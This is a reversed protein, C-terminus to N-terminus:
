MNIARVLRVGWESDPNTTRDGVREQIVAVSLDRRKPLRAKEAASLAAGIEELSLDTTYVPAGPQQRWSEALTGADFADLGTDEVLAMAVKRDRDRDAAVPIAIRGPAGKPKGKTAFSASGIANWAKAIPRGLQEVVWLSEVQGAEIAAIRADRHPYYNSTDIVVTEEPVAAILPAIGPIRNLPISLIIVEIDRLAEQTTVAQAGGSLLDAEITEPGRSNAVKVDHGAASLEKVLTKGIHGTGLIGIKM